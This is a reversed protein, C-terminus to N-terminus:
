CRGYCCRLLLNGANKWYKFAQYRQWDLNFLGTLQDHDRQYETERCSATEETVDTIVGFIEEGEQIEEIKLYKGNGVAFIENEGPM